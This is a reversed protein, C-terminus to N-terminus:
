ADHPRARRRAIQDDTSVSGPQNSQASSPAPSAPSAASSPPCPCASAAAALPSLFTSVSMSSAVEIKGQWWRIEGQTRSDTRITHAHARTQNIIASPHPPPADLRIAVDSRHEHSPTSTPVVSGHM